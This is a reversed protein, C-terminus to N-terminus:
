YTESTKCLVKLESLVRQEFNQVTIEAENARPVRAICMM